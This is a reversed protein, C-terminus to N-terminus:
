TASPCPSRGPEQADFADPAYGRGVSSWALPLPKAM